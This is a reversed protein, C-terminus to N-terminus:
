MSRPLPRTATSAPLDTEWLPLADVQLAPKTAKLADLYTQTVQISKSQEGRPFAQIFLMKTM